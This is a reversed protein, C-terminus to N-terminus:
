AVSDHNTRGARRAAKGPAARGIERMAGLNRAITVRATVRVTLSPSLPHHISASARSTMIARATGQVDGFAEGELIVTSGANASPRTAGNRFNTGTVTLETGVTGKAPSVAAIAPPTAKPGTSDGGGCAVVVALLVGGTLRRIPIHM